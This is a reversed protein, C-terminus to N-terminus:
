PTSWANEDGDHSPIRDIDIEYTGTDSFDFTRLCTEALSSMALVGNSSWGKLVGFRLDGRSTGLTFCDGIDNQCLWM